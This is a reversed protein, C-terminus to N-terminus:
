ENNPEEISDKSSYPFIDMISSESVSAIYWDALTDKMGQRIVALAEDIDGAQALM